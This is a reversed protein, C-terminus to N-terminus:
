EIATIYALLKSPQLDLNENNPRHKGYIVCRSM